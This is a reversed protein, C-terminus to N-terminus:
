GWFKDDRHKALTRYYADDMKAEEFPNRAIVMM